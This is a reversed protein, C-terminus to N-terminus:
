STAPQATYRALAQEVTIGNVTVHAAAGRALDLATDLLFRHDAIWEQTRSSPIPEYDWEGDGDLCQGMRCVAWLTQGDIQGREEVTIAFLRANIDDDPLCNVTYQSPRVSPPPTPM